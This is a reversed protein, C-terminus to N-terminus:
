PGAPPARSPHPRWRAHAVLPRRRPRTRLWCAVTEREYLLPSYAGAEEGPWEGRALLPRHTVGVSPLGLVAGLHLALGAGRPHDRGTANVLVVEPARPLGRRAGELLPGGRLALLGAEYAGGAAGSVSLSALVRTGVALAAGAWGRQARLSRGEATRAFCVFCGGVLYDRAQPRWPPPRAAAM